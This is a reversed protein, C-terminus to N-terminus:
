PRHTKIFAHFAEDYEEIVSEEIVSEEIVSEETVPVDSAQASALAAEELSVMPLGGGQSVHDAIERVPWASEWVLVSANLTGLLGDVERPFQRRNISAFIEGLKCCAFFLGYVATGDDGICAVRDGTGIGRDRLWNATRNARADLDAYTFRVSNEGTVDVLAVADPDYVCRQVLYDGVYM